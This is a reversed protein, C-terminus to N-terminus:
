RLILNIFRAAYYIFNTDTIAAGLFMFPAFPISPEENEKNKEPYILLNIFYFVLTYKLIQMLNLILTAYNFNDIRLIARLIFGLFAVIAFIMIKKRLAKMVKRRLARYLVSYLIYVILINATPPFYVNLHKTLYSVIWNIGLVTLFSFIIKKGLAALDIKSFLNIKNKIINHLGLIIMALMSLLFINMFLIVSPFPIFGSHRKTPMLLSFVIFLKADGAGWMNLSYFAYGIIIGILLNLLLNYDITIEHNIQLYAHIVLALAGFWLLHRNRIAKYKIDTYSSLIGLAIIPFYFPFM